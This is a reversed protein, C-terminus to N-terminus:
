CGTALQEHKPQVFESLEAKAVGVIRVSRLKYKQWSRECSGHLAAAPRSQVNSSLSLRRMDHVAVTLRADLHGETALGGLKALQLILNPMTISHTLHSPHSHADCPCRLLRQQLAVAPRCQHQTCCTGATSEVLGVLGFTLIPTTFVYPNGTVSATESDVPKTVDWLVGQVQAHPPRRRWICGGLAHRSSDNCCAKRDMGVETLRASLSHALFNSAM